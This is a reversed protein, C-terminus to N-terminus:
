RTQTMSDATEASLERSWLGISKRLKIDTLSIFARLIRYVAYLADIAIPETRLSVVSDSMLRLGEFTLVRDFTVQWRRFFVFRNKIGGSSDLTTASFM